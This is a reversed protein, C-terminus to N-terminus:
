SVEGLAGKCHELQDTRMKEAAQLVLRVVPNGKLGGRLGAATIQAISDRPVVTASCLAYLFSRFESVSERLCARVLSQSCADSASVLTETALLAAAVIAGLASAPLLIHFFQVCGNPAPARWQKFEM